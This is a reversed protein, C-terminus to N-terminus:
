LPGTETKRGVCTVQRSWLPSTWSSLTSGITITWTTSNKGGTDPALLVQSRLRGKATVSTGHDSSLTFVYGDAAPGGDTFDVVTVQMADGLPPNCLYTGVVNTPAAMTAVSVQLTPRPPSAVSFAALAVGPVLLVAVVLLAVSAARRSRDLLNM